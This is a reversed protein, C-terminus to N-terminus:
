PIGCSRARICECIAVSLAIIVVLTTFLLILAFCVLIVIRLGEESLPFVGRLREVNEMIFQYAYYMSIVVAIFNIFLVCAYLCPRGM